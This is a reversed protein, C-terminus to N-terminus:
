ILVCFVLAYLHKSKEWPLFVLLSASTFLINETRGVQLIRMFSTVTM